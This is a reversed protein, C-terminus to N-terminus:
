AASGAARPAALLREAAELVPEPGVLRMCAHDVPCERLKCPSCSVPERLLAHGDGGPATERWDTPGFVAVVPVGLAAALHMPGSDNTLLLALRSLVGALGGLSTEGCLVRVPADLGAAITEALLREAASGVIAIRVGHRRALAQAVVAYREPLWRKASGFSAGPNLGVWPGGGDGLLEAARARWAPLPSLTAEPAGAVALGIGELMARYYYVESQGRVAGPVRASRTLLPGRGDCAYGWREPIRALWPELASRFSNTLLLAADWEGAALREVTDALRGAALAGDVEPVAAYLEGLPGRALVELRAGPFNRRADRLAPLSLCCDGLWNPVRVLLREVKM